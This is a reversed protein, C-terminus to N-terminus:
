LYGGLLLGLWVTLGLLVHVTGRLPSDTAWEAYNLPAKVFVLHVYGYALRPQRLAVHGYHGACERHRVHAQHFTPPQAHLLTGPHEGARACFAQASAQWALVTAYARAYASPLSPVEAAAEGPKFDVACVRAHARSREASGPSTGEAETDHRDEPWAMM